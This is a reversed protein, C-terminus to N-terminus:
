SPEIMQDKTTCTDLYVFNRKLVSEEKEQFMMNGQDGALGELHILIKGLQETTIDPCEVQDQRGRLAQM